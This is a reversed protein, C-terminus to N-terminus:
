QKSWFKSLEYPGSVMIPDVGYKMVKEVAAHGDDAIIAFTKRACKEVVSIYYMNM